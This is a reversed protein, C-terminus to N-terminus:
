IAFAMPVIPVMQMLVATLLWLCCGLVLNLTSNPRIKFLIMMASSLAVAALWVFFQYGGTLAFASETASIRPMLPYMLVLLMLFLTWPRELLFDLVQLKYLVFLLAVVLLLLHLNAVVQGIGTIITMIGYYFLQGLLTSDPDYPDFGLQLWISDPVPNLTNKYALRDHGDRAPRWWFSHLDGQEDAHIFGLRSYAQEWTMRNFDSLIEGQYNLISYYLEHTNGSTEEWVIYVKGGNATVTAYHSVGMRNTIIKDLVVEGDKVQIYAVDVIHPTLTPPKTLHNYVIHIVGDEDMDMVPGVRRVTYLGGSGLGALNFLAPGLDVTEHGGDPCIIDLYMRGTLDNLIYAFGDSDTIIQGGSFARRDRVWTRRPPVGETRVMKLDKDFLIYMARMERPLGGMMSIHMNGQDDMAFSFGLVLRALGTRTDIIQNPHSINYDLRHIEGLAGQEPWFATYMQWNGENDVTTWLLTLGDSFPTAKLFTEEDIHPLEAQRELFVQGDTNVAVHHVTASKWDLHYIHFNGQKDTIVPPLAQDRPATILTQIASWDYRDPVPVTEETSEASESEAFVLGPCCLILVVLFIALFRNTM